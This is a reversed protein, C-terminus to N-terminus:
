VDQEDRADKYKENSKKIQLDIDWSEESM